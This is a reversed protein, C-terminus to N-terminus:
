RRAELEEWRAYLVAVKEQAQQLAAWAEQLRLHDSAVTPDAIRAELEAVKAEAAEIREEMRKLERQEVQSLRGVEAPRAATKAPAASRQQAAAESDRAWEWQSFDAFYRAGGKGDLALLETSLRDLLYRDHSVLVLAGPFDALSEELVELTPIDLDNTPEDLILLDAPQLMLRAILVRAQEGGSLFGVTMELQETRFLFRKAWAAVHIPRDRYIVTDGSPALAQRLSLSRDLHEREQDFYVIRLGDARRVEGRDPEAEGALIRLLTTKGSGNVGLLGLKMKPALVIDLGRFLARGDFGKEIGKAVLLDRTKRGSATFDVGAARDQSNRFRLEALDDILKGAERVRAGSKTSRAEPTRRLWEVERRVKNALAMQQHAQAALYGERQILFESYPGNISLFGEAYARSLEITRNTVNELFYRDHSVVILGFPANKLLWELWLVGELDLHNTPEDLLLLEPRRILARGIALRKQWGGSLEAAPQDPQAFGLQGLLIEVEVEREHEDLHSDALAEHLVQRVTRGAPFTDEQAVFALRLQRRAAVFGADPTEEGAILKLLTSKGSGNPGILGIREGEDIGFTIGTFLPRGGYSKSLEQCNLLLAM